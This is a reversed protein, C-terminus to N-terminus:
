EPVSKVWAPALDRARRNEKADDPYDYEGLLKRDSLRRREFHLYNSAHVVTQRYAVEDGNGLFCWGFIALGNGTLTHIRKHEDLVVLELPIPYSTCCNPYLALWGVRKGDSSVAASEFGVQGSLKPPVVTRGDTTAIVLYKGDDKVQVTAYAGAFALLPWLLALFVTIRKM